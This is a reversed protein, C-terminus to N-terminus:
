MCVGEIPVHEDLIYIGLVREHYLWCVLVTTLILAEFAFSCSFVRKQTHTHTYFLDLLCIAVVGDYTQAINTATYRITKSINHLQRKQLWEASPSVSLSTSPSTRTFQGTLRQQLHDTPRDTPRDSWRVAGVLWDLLM